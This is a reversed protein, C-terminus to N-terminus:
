RGKVEITNLISNTSNKKYFLIRKVNKANVSIAIRGCWKQIPNNMILGFGSKSYEKIKIVYFLKGIFFRCNGLETM